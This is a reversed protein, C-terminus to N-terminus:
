ALAVVLEILDAPLPKACMFAQNARVVDSVSVRGDHLGKCLLEHMHCTMPKGFEFWLDTEPVSELPVPAPTITKVFMVPAAPMRVSVVPVVRAGALAKVFLIPRGAKM